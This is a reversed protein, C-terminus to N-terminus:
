ARSRGSQGSTKSDSLRRQGLKWWGRNKNGMHAARIMAAGARSAGCSVGEERVREERLAVHTTTGEDSRQALAAVGRTVPAVATLRM